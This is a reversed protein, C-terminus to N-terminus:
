GCQKKVGVGRNVSGSIADQMYFVGTSVLLRFTCLLLSLLRCQSTINVVRGNFVTCRGTEALRPDLTM